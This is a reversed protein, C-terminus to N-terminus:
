SQVISGIDRGDTSKKFYIQNIHQTKTSTSPWQEGRMKRRLFPGLIGSSRQIFEYRIHQQRAAYLIPNIASPLYHLNSLILLLKFSPVLEVGYKALIQYIIDLLSTPLWAGLFVMLIIFMTGAAKTAYKNPMMREAQSAKIPNIHGKSPSATDKSGHSSPTNPFSYSRCTKLHKQTTRVITAYCVVMILFLLGRYVYQAISIYNNIQNPVMNLICTYLFPAYFCENFVFVPVSLGGLVLWTVIVIANAKRITMTGRYRFPFHILIFADLAIFTLLIYAVLNTVFSLYTHVSCWLGGGLWEGGLASIANTIVIPGGIILDVFALHGILCNSVTRLSKRILIIGITALNGSVSLLACIVFYVGCWYDALM